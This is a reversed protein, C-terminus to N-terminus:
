KPTLSRATSKLADFINSIFPRSLFLSIYIYIYICLVCMYIIIKKRAVLFDEKVQLLYILVGVLQKTAFNVLTEPLNTKPDLIASLVVHGATPGTCTIQHKSETPKKNTPPPHTHKAPKTYQNTSQNPTTEHKNPPQSHPHIDDWSGV